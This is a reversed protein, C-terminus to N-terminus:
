QRNREVILREQSKKWNESCHMSYGWIVKVNEVYFIGVHMSRVRVVSAWIKTRKTRRHATKSNCGKKWFTCRIVVVSSSMNLTFFVLMCTLYVWSAWSWGNKQNLQGLKQFLADWILRIITWPWFYWCAHWMCGQPRFKWWSQEVVLRKWIVAWNKSVHVSHGWFSRSMNLTLPVCLVVYM